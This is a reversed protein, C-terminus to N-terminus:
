TTKNKIESDYYDPEYIIIKRKRYDTNQHPDFGLVEIEYLYDEYTMYRETKM